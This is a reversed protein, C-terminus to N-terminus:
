SLTFLNDLDFKHKMRERQYKPSKKKKTHFTMFIVFLNTLFYLRLVKKQFQKSDQIIKRLTFPPKNAKNDEADFPESQNSRCKIALRDLRNSVRIDSYWVPLPLSQAWGSGTSM